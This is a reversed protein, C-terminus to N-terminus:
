SFYYDTWLSRLTRCTKPSFYVIHDGSFVVQTDTIRVIHSLNVIISQSCLVFRKDKLLEQMAESFPIRLSTSEETRNNPLHYVATRRCLEVYLIGNLQIRVLGTKTKVFVSDQTKSLIAAYADELAATLQQPVVPKLLYGFAKAKYSDIAFERSSTLYIIIGDDNNQRLRVGLEIGNTDPMIIDLIYVDFSDQADCAKLLNQACSFVAYSIEQNEHTAIYENLQAVLQTRCMEEDDCIAIRM